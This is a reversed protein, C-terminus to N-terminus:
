AQVQVKIGLDIIENKFVATCHNNDTNIIIGGKYSWCIAQKHASSTIFYICTLSLCLIILDNYFWDKAFESEAKWKIRKNQDRM